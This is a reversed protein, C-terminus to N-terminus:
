SCDNVFHTKIWHARLVRIETFKEDANLQREIFQEAPQLKYSTSKSMISRNRYSYSQSCSEFPHTVSRDITCAQFAHTGFPVLPEFGRGDTEEKQKSM